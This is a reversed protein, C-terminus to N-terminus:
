FEAIGSRTGKTTKDGQSSRSNTDQRLGGMEPELGLEAQTQYGCAGPKVDKKGRLDVSM